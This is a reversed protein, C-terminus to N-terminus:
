VMFSVTTIAEDVEKWYVVDDDMGDVVPNDGHVRSLDPEIEPFQNFRL